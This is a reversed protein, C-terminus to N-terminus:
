FQTPNKNTQSNINMKQMFNPNLNTSISFIFYWMLILPETTEEDFNATQMPIPSYCNTQNRLINELAM